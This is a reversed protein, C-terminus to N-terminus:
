FDTSKKSINKDLLSIILRDKVEKLYYMQGEKPDLIHRGGPLLVLEGQKRRAMATVILSSKASRGCVSLLMICSNVFMASNKDEFLNNIGNLSDIIVLFREKSIKDLIQALSSNWKEIELHYITVNTNKKILRATVYGSYLLDFDLFIVKNDTHDIIEKLFKTKVLPHSCLIINSGKKSFTNQIQILDEDLLLKPNKDLVM